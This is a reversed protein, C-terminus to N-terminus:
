EELRGQSWEVHVGSERARAAADDLAVQSVDLATVRWGQGALWIADAGVGCGIDLARGPRMAAVETPLLANPEVRSMHEALGTYRQDWETALANAAEPSGTMFCLM